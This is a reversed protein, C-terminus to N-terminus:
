SQGWVKPASLAAQQMIETYRLLMDEYQMLGNFLVKSNDSFRSRLAKDQVITQLAISLAKADDHQFYLANMNEAAQEAIGYVSTTVLPLGFAMAELVVRPYSERISTCIAVDAALFYLYPQDTEAIVVIREQWEKPLNRIALHLQKSYDSDRDGVIFVRVRHALISPLNSIAEILVKQNKRECVTGVLTLAVDDDNLGLKIRSMRRTLGQSRQRIRTLDLGNQIVTFNSGGNLPKWLECTSTAVFIVRYPYHFAEYAIEQLFDPLNHYYTQWPESERINWVAPIGARRAVHIAWFSEATNAYVLEAGSMRIVNALFEIRSNYVSPDFGNRLPHDIVEVKIGADEYFNRLPGDDPAIVVPVFNHKSSLGKVLEFMSNPAGEHNLNHSFMAIRIPEQFCDPDVYKYPRVEFSENDRTLNQNYWPDTYNRYRHRFIALELKNDSFGRSKGEFHTLEAEPCYIVRHGASVLRYCYDVDNYAVAFQEEDMGQISLFLDKNTLLCAATVASYERAVM